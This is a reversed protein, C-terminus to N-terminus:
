YDFLVCKIADNQKYYVDYMKSRRAKLTLEEAHEASSFHKNFIIFQYYFRQLQPDAAHRVHPSTITGVVSSVHHALIGHFVYYRFGLKVSSQSIFCSASRIKLGFIKKDDKVIWGSGSSSSCFHKNEPFVPTRQIVYRYGSPVRTYNPVYMIPSNNKRTGGSM